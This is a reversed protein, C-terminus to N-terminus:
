SERGSIRGLIGRVALRITATLGNEAVSSVFGVASASVAQIRGAAPLRPPQVPAGLPRKLHSSQTQAIFARIQAIAADEAELYRARFKATETTARALQEADFDVGIIGDTGLEDGAILEPFKENFGCAVPCECLLAEAILSSNEFIYFVESGQFAHLMERRPTERTLILDVELGEPLGLGDIDRRKGLYACRGRRPAGPEPPTWYVADLVPLFLVQVQGPTADAIRQSYAYVLDTEPGIETRGGVVGLFNLLYKVSLGGPTPFDLSEPRVIVPQRGARFHLNATAQTLVPCLMEGPPLGPAGPTTVLLYAEEGLSNLAHCLTHLTRNGASKEDYRPTVIYYPRRTSKLFIRDRLFSAQSPTGADTVKGAM